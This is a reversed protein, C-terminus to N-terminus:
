EGDDPNDDGGDGTDTDDGGGNGTPLDGYTPQGEVYGCEKYGYMSLRLKGAENAQEVTGSYVVNDDGGRALPPITTGAPYEACLHYVSGGQVWYVQDSGTYAYVVSAQESREELSPPNWDVSALGVVLLAVIGIIGAINRDKQDMDKNLFILIILPLFAIIAIIAGLQNQVFFRFAQKKPAPDWRNAKKWLMSGVLAFIGIVVFAGILWYLFGNLETHKLLWFIAFAEAGIALVWLLIAIIRLGLAKKKHEPPIIENASGKPEKLPEASVIKKQTAM